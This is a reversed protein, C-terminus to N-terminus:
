PEWCVEHFKLGVLFVKQTELDNTKIEGTNLFQASHKIACFLTSHVKFHAPTLEFELETMKNTKVISTETRYRSFFFLAEARAAQGISCLFLSIYTVLMAVWNDEKLSSEQCTSEPLSEWDGVKGRELIATCDRSIHKQAHIGWASGRIQVQGM